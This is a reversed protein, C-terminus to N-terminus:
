WRPKQYSLRYKEIVHAPLRVIDRYRKYLGVQKIIHWHYYTSFKVGKTSDFNVLAEWMAIRGMQRFEDKLGPNKRLYKNIFSFLLGENKELFYEFLKNDKTQQYISVLQENTMQSWEKM